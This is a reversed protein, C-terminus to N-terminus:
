KSSVEMRTDKSLERMQLLLLIVVQRKSREEDSFGTARQEGNLELARGIMIALAARTVEGDPRFTGDPRGTIIGKTELFSM